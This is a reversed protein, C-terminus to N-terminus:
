TIDWWVRGNLLDGMWMSASLSAAFLAEVFSCSPSTLPAIRMKDDSIDYLAGSSAEKAKSRALCGSAKPAENAEAWLVTLIHNLNFSTSAPPVRGRM